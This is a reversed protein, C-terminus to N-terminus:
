LNMKIIKEKLIKRGECLHWKSTGETIGLINAIEKHPIGDMVFLNFVIKTTKPLENIINLLKDYLIRDTFKVDLVEDKEIYIVNENHKENLRLNDLATRVIIKRLWGEFSGQFTFTEIKKFCKLFGMNVIDEAQHSDVCYRMATNMMKSYYMKYMREQALRENRRCSIIIQYLEEESCLTYSQNISM